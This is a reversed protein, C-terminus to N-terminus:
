QIATPNLTAAQPAVYLRKDLDHQEKEADLKKMLEEVDVVISDNPNLAVEFGTMKVPIPIDESGRIHTIKPKGYKGSGAETLPVLGIRAKVAAVVDPTRGSAFLKVVEIALSFGLAVICTMRFKTANNSKINLLDVKNEKNAQTVLWFSMILGALAIGITGYQVLDLLQVPDGGAALTKMPILMNM